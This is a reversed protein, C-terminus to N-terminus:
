FHAAKSFIIFKNSVTCIKFQQIYTVTYTHTHTHLYSNL